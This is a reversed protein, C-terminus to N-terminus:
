ELKPVDGYVVLVEKPGYAGLTTDYSRAWARVGAYYRKVDMALVKAYLDDPMKKPEYALELREDKWSYAELFVLRPKDNSEM